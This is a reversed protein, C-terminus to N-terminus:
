NENKSSNFLPNVYKFPVNFRRGMSNRIILSYRGNNKLSNSANAHVILWNLGNKQPFRSEDLRVSSGDESAVSVTLTDNNGDSEYKLKVDGTVNLRTEGIHNVFDYYSQDVFVEKLLSDEIITFKWVEAGGLLIGKYYADVTWVYPRFKELPKATTPYLVSTNTIGTEQYVPNNRTIANTNNQGQKLEAVRIKYTLSSAFPYNVIWSLMPYYDYLKANNEPDVLNILFIDNVTQYICADIPVATPDESLRDKAQVEVCYEYTGQPLKGYEFFLEKLATTSFNWIPNNVVDRSFMNMGPQLGTAFTYSFRMNSARFRVTGTVQVDKRKNTGNLIQYNFINEPKLEIGDLMGLNVTIGQATSRLTCLLLMFCWLARKNDQLIKKMVM